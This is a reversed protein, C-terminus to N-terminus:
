GYYNERAYELLTERENPLSDDIVLTLLRDLAKGIDKGKLGVDIMDNGNVALQSLKMCSNQAIFRRAKEEYSELTKNETLVFERKARNDAKKM